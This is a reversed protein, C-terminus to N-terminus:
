PSPPRRVVVRFGIVYDRSFPTGHGRSAARAVYHDFFWSGGRLV